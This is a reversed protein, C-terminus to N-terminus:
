WAFCGYLCLEKENSDNLRIVYIEPIDWICAYIVIELKGDNNFDVLTFGTIDFYKEMNETKELEEPTLVRELIIEVEENEVKLVFSYLGKKANEEDPDYGINSLIYTENVGNSDMDALIVKNIFVETELGKQKLVKEVYKEYETFKEKEVLSFRSSYRKDISKSLEFDLFNEYKKDGTTEEESNKYALYEYANFRFTNIDYYYEPNLDKDYFVDDKKGLFKNEDYIYFDKNEIIDDATFESKNVNVKISDGLKFSYNERLDQMYENASKWENENNVTGLFCNIVGIYQDKAEYEAILEQKKKEIAAEELEKKENETYFYTAVIAVFSIVIISISVILINKNRKKM